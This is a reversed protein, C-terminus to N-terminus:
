YILFTKSFSIFNVGMTGRKDCSFQVSPCANWSSDLRCSAIAASRSSISRLRLSSDFRLGDDSPESVCEPPPRFRAADL